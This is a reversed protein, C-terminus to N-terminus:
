LNGLFSEQIVEEKLRSNPLDYVTVRIGRQCLSEQILESVVSWSARGEGCGIRPMHVSAGLRLSDDALKDLCCRLSYYQVRTKTSEGYGKQALLNCLWADSDVKYLKTAGLAFTEPKESRWRKYEVQSYPWKSKLHRGFGGGWARARDNVIHAIIKKGKGRPETADGVLYKIGRSAPPGSKLSRAIGVVRPYSHGPYPPIGLCEVLLQPGNRTWQERGKATFGIATCQEVVSDLPLLTERLLEERLNLSKVAYDLKYRGKPDPAEIMSACFVSLPLKTLRVTRLLVAEASVEYTKRLKLISDISCDEAGLEPFGGIPMLFEAAAINCLMELQWTDGAMRDRSYRYKTSTGFDDFLTHAIEHAISYAIRSQSRNPNFEILPTTGVRSILRADLINGNPQVSINLREALLLPDYPPGSWGDQFSDLVIKRALDLIVREPDGKKAIKLVSPHTWKHTKM